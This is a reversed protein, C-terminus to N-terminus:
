QLGWVYSRLENLHSPKIVTQGATITPDTYTPAPKGAAAYAQTLATRLDSLHSGQVSGGAAPATGTWTAAALGRQTRLGNIATLLETFHVAKIPTSQAGLPDDTFVTTGVVVNYPTGPATTPARTM